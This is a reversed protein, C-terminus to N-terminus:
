WSVVAGTNLVNVWTKDTQLTCLLFDLLCEDKNQTFSTSPSLNRLPLALGRCSM